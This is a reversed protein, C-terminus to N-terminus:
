FVETPLIHSEIFFQIKQIDIPMETIPITIRPEDNVNSHLSDESNKTKQTPTEEELKRLAEEFEPTPARIIEDLDQIMEQVEGEDINPSTSM